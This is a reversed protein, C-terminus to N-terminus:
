IKPYIILSLLPFIDERVIEWILLTEENQVSKLIAGIMSWLITSMNEKASKCDGERSWPAM